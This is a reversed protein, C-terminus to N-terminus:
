NKKLPQGRYAFKPWIWADLVDIAAERGFSSIIVQRIKERSASMTGNSPNLHAQQDFFQYELMLSKFLALENPTVTVQVSYTYQYYTWKITGYDETKTIGQDLNVDNASIFVGLLKMVPVNHTAGVETRTESGHIEITIHAFAKQGKSQLDAIAASHKRIEENIKPQLDEMQKKLWQEDAWKQIIPALLQLALDILGLGVIMMGEGFGGSGGPMRRTISGSDLPLEGAITEPRFNSRIATQLPSPQGNKYLVCMQRGGRIYDIGIVADYEALNIANAKVFNAFVRGYNVNAARISPEVIRLDKQWRADTTLDLVRLASRDIEVSYVRRAAPDTARLDAYEVASARRDTLYMGDGIDHDATKDPPIPAVGVAEGRFWLDGM